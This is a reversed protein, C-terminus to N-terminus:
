LLQIQYIYQITEKPLNKHTYKRQIKLDYGKFSNLTM